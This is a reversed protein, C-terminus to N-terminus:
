LTQQANSSAASVRPRMLGVVCWPAPRLVCIALVAVLCAVVWWRTGRTLSSRRPGAWGGWFPSSRRSRRSTRSLGASSATRCTSPTEPRNRHRHLPSRPPRTPASTFCSFAFPPGPFGRRTCQSFFQRVALPDGEDRLTRSRRSCCHYQHNDTKGSGSSHQDRTATNRWLLAPFPRTRQLMPCTDLLCIGEVVLRVGIM